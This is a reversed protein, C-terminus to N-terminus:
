SFDAVASLTPIGRWLAIANPPPLLDIDENWGYDVGGLISSANDSDTVVASRLSLTAGL